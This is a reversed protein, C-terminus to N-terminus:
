VYVCVCVAQGSEPIGTQETGPSVSVTVTVQESRALVKGRPIPLPRRRMRRRDGGAAWPLETNINQVPAALFRPGVALFLLTFM